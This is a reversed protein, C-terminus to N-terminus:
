LLCTINREIRLKGFVQQLDAGKICCDWVIKTKVEKCFVMLVIPGSIVLGSTM